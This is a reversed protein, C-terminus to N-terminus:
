QTERKLQILQQQYDESKQAHQAAERGAQEHLKVPALVKDCAM